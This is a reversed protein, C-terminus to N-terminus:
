RNHKIQMLRTCCARVGWGNVTGYRPDGGYADDFVARFALQRPDTAPLKPNMAGVRKRFSHKLFWRMVAQFPRLKWAKLFWKALFMLVMAAGSAIYTQLDKQTVDKLVHQVFSAVGAFVFGTVLVLFLAALTSFYFLWCGVRPLWLTRMLLWSLFVVVIPTVCLLIWAGKDIAAMRNARARTAM